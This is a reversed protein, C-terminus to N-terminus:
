DERDHKAALEVSGDLGGRLRSDVDGGVEVHLNAGGVM